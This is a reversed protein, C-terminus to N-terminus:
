GGLEQELRAVNHITSRISGRLDYIIANSGHATGGKCVYSVRFAAPTQWIDTINHGAQVVRTILQSEEPTIKM